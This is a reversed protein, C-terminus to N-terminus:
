PLGRRLMARFLQRQSLPPVPLTRAGEARFGDLTLALHRRWANPAVPSTAAVVAGTGILVFALDEPTVDARLTGQQQARAILQSMQERLRARGAELHRNGPLTTTLADPLGAHSAQHQCVREFYHELGRWADDFALAEDLATGYETYEEDYLAGVLDARTPFRRYLTAIGVGAREAVAELSAHVGHAAFM